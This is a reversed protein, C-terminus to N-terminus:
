RNAPESMVSKCWERLDGVRFSFAVVVVFLLSVYSNSFCLQMRYHIAFSCSVRTPNKHSFKLNKGEREKTISSKIHRSRYKTSKWNATRHLLRTSPCPRLKADNRDNPQTPIHLFSFTQALFFLFLLSCITIFYCLLMNAWHPFSSFWKGTYMSRAWRPFHICSVYCCM